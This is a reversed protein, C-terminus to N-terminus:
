VNSRSFRLNTSGTGVFLVSKLCVDAVACLLNVLRSVVERLLQCVGTRLPAHIKTIQVVISVITFALSHWFAPGSKIVDIIHNHM